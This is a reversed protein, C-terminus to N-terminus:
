WDEEPVLEHAPAVQRIFDEDLWELKFSKHCLTYEGNEALTPAHRFVIKTKQAWLPGSFTGDEARKVGASVQCYQGKADTTSISFQTPNGIGCTIDFRAGIHGAPVNWTDCTNQGSFAWQRNDTYKKKKETKEFVFKSPVPAFHVLQRLYDFKWEAEIDELTGDDLITKYLPKWLGMDSDGNPQMAVALFLWTLANRHRAASDTKINDDTLCSWQNYNWFVTQLDEWVCEYIKETDPGSMIVRFQEIDEESEPDMFRFVRSMSWRNPKVKMATKVLNSIDMGLLYLFLEGSPRDVCDYEGFIADSTQWFEKKESVTLPNVNEYIRELVTIWSELTWGAKRYDFYVASNDNSSWAGQLRSKFVPLISLILAHAPVLVSDADENEIRVADAESDDREYVIIYVDTRFTKWPVNKAIRTVAPVNPKHRKAAPPELEADQAVVLQAM